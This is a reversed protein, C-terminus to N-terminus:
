PMAVPCLCCKHHMLLLRGFGSTSRTPSSYITKFQHASGTETLFIVPREVWSPSPSIQSNIKRSKLTSPIEQGYHEKRDILEDIIIVKKKKEVSFWAFKFDKANEPATFMLLCCPVLEYEPSNFAPPPMFSLPRFPFFPCLLFTWSPLPAPRLPEDRHTGTASTNTAPRAWCLFGPGWFVAQSEPDAGKAPKPAKERSIM